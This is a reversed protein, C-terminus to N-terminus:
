LGSVFPATWIRDSVEHGRGEAAKAQRGHGIEGAEERVAGYARRVSDGDLEVIQFQGVLGQVDRGRVDGAQQRAFPTAGPSRTAIM